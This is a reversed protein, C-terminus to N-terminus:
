NHNSHFHEALSHFSYTHLFIKLTSKFQKPNDFMTKIHSPLNNLFKIGSYYVGKQNKILSPLPPHLNCHQSTKISHVESNLIHQDKNNIVFLLLSYIYIYLTNWYRRWSNEQTNGVRFYAFFNRHVHTWFHVPESIDLATYFDSFQM